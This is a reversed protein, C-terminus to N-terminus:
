AVIVAAIGATDATRLVAGLNGPKEVGEVVAVIEDTAIQLQGLERRPLEAVAVVGEVRSGFSLKEMVYPTVEIFEAGAARAASLLQQEEEENCLQPFYYLEVVQVGARLALSIERVGDIIIRGQEDRGPRDRLRAAAKVRQNHLSTIMM